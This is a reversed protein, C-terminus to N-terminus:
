KRVASMPTLQNTGSQDIRGPAPSPGAAQIQAAEGTAKITASTGLLVVWYRQWGDTDLSVNHILCSPEGGIQLFANLQATNIVTTANNEDTYQVTASYPAMTILKPPAATQSILFPNTNLVVPQNLQRMDYVTSSCSCLFVLAFSAAATRAVRQTVIPQSRQIKM